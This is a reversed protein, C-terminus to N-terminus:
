ATIGSDNWGSTGSITLDSGGGSLKTGTVDDSSSTSSTPPQSDNNVNVNRLGKLDRFNIPDLHRAIVLDVQYERPGSAIKNGGTLQGTPYVYYERSKTIAGNSAMKHIEMYKCCENLPLVGQTSQYMANFWAEFFLELTGIEDDIFSVTMIMETKRQPVMLSDIGGEWNFTQGTAIPESVDTVPLGIGGHFDFPAPAGELRIEFWYARSWNVARLYEIYRPMTSNYADWQAKTWGVTNPSNAKSIGFITEKIKTLAPIAANAINTLKSINM